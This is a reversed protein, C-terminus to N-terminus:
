WTGGGLVGNWYGTSEAGHNQDKNQEVNNETATSTTTPGQKLNLDEFPFLIRGSSEQMSTQLSGFGSSGIGDLTFHLSNKLEPLSFRPDGIPQIPFFSNNFGRTSSTMGTLLELASLQSSSNTSSPLNEKKNPDNDFNPVQILDNITKFDQVSPFGLNLDQGEHFKMNPNQSHDQTQSHNNVHPTVVLDHSIKKSSTSSSSTTASRKNKRSGGGVPINRLSGGATWYRRCAKCFFRPQSLSYNNYYCFKTNTSNCRPCNHVQDKLPRVKSDLSNSTKSSCANNPVVLIEEMPKVETEQSWQATDM